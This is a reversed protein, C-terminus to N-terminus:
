YKQFGNREGYVMGVIGFHHKLQYTYFLNVNQGVNAFGALPNSPDAKSFNGVAFSPGTSISLTNKKFTTQSFSQTAPIAAIALLCLLQKM